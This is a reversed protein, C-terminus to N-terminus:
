EYKALGEERPLGDNINLWAVHERYFVHNRPILKEPENFIGLYLHIENEFKDSQYSIPSGCEGCFNRKVGDATAHSAPKEHTFDVQNLQFSVFTALASATHRRCSECHCHGIDFPEGRTQIRTAGCYCHGQRISDSM